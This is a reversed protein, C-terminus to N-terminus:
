QKEAGNDAIDKPTNAQPPPNQDDDLIVSWAPTELDDYQGARVAWFFVYIAGALIVLGLPILWFISSM